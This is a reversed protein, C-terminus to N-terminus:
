LFILPYHQISYGDTGETYDKLNKYKTVLKGKEKEIHYPLTWPIVNIDTNRTMYEIIM